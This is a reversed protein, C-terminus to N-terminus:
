VEMWMAKAYCYVPHTGDPASVDLIEGAFKRKFVSGSKFLYADIKKQANAAYTASQVFGGHREVVFRADQLLTSDLEAQKPLATSLLMHTGSGKKTCNLLPKADCEEFEFRGYGSTRKGGIGSYSLSEFIPRIDYEGCVLIYLGCNANFTYCGVFYPDADNKYQRTLNVKTTLGSKGLEFNDLEAIYDFNGSMYAKLKEAPIFDLKKSAKRVKSSVTPATAGGTIDRASVFPKPLYLADNVYPLADSILLKGTQAANLLDDQVGMNLAEIYLASFLTAASFRFESDNLRGNGLHVAGKFHLKYIKASM